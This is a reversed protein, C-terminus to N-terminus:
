SYTGTLRDTWAVNTATGSASISGVQTYAIRNITWVEDSELSGAIAIGSYSFSPDGPVYDFRRTAEAASSWIASNSQVVTTTDNWTASTTQVVTNVEENDSGGATIGTLQSGDGYLYGTSSINGVVTLSQNPSETNIGVASTTTYLTAVDSNPSIELNTASLSQVSLSGSIEGGSLKLFSANAQSSTLWSGSNSQVTTYTSQWNGSLTRLGTDINSAWQASNSQVNTYTNQWNASLGKLDTGQYNWNTASNALVNSYVSNWNSSNYGEAFLNGTASINGVVTLVENPSETKIGIKSQSSVFLAASDEDSFSILIESASISQASLSGSLVGGSLPLFNSQVFTKTSYSASNSSFDTYSSDWKASNSRVLTTAEADGAVIGTLESGDGYLKRTASLDNVYTVGSLHSTINSGLIFSEKHLLQNNQGAFIGGFDASPGIFNNLGNGILAFDSEIDNNEGNIVSSGSGSVDNNYGSHVAAFVGTVTNSGIKTNISSLSNDLTYPNKSADEFTLIDENTNKFFINGDAINLALEGFSLNQNTPVAGEVSSRKILIKSASLM